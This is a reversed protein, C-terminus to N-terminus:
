DGSNFSQKGKPKDCAATRERVGKTENWVLRKQKYPLPADAVEGVRVGHTCDHRIPGVSPGIRACWSSVEPPATKEYTFPAYASKDDLRGTGQQFKTTLPFGSWVPTDPSLVHSLSVFRARAFVNDWVSWLGTATSTTKAGTVTPLVTAGGIAISTLKLLRRDM